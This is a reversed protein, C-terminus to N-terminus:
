KMSPDTESVFQLLKACTNHSFMDMVRVNKKCKSSLAEALEQIVLSDADLQMLPVTPSELAEPFIDEFVMIARIVDELGVKQAESSSGSTNKSVSVEKKTSTESASEVTVSQVTEETGETRARPARRTRTVYKSCRYASTIAPRESDRSVGFAQEWGDADSCLNRDIERHDHDELQHRFHKALSLESSARALVPLAEMDQSLTLNVMGADSHHTQHTLAWSHNTVTFVLFRTLFFVSKRPADRSVLLELGGGFFYM